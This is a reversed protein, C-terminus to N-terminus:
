AVDTAQSILVTRLHNPLDDFLKESVYTNSNEVVLSFKTQRGVIHKDSVIGQSTPYKSFLSGYIGSINPLVGQRLNIVGVAIRHRLKASFPDNWLPGYVSLLGPNLEKAIRRRVSYNAANLPSVKNAAIMAITIPRLVWNEFTFLSSDPVTSLISELTPDSDSPINPNLNYSYPWGVFGNGRSWDNVAGPTIVDAYKDTSSTKYELTYVSEPELRILIARSPSGGGNVFQAYQKRNHNISILFNPTGLTQLGLGHSELAERLIPYSDSATPGVM